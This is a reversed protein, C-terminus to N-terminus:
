RNPGMYQAGPNQMGTGPGMMGMNGSQQPGMGAGTGSSYGQAFGPPARREMLAQPPPPPVTGGQMQPPGGGYGYNQTM